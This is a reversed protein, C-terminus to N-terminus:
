IGRHCAALDEDSSDDSAQQKTENRLSHVPEVRRVGVRTFRTPNGDYHLRHQTGDPHDPESSTDRTLGLQITRADLFLGM